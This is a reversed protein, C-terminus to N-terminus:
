GPLQDGKLKPEHGPVVQSRAALLARFDDNLLSGRKLRRRVVKRIIRALRRDEAIKRFLTESVPNKSLLHYSHGDSVLHLGLKQAIVQLTKRSYFSIHQGSEPALYWWDKVKADAPLLETTFFVNKSLTLMQSISSMPDPLHEFVEFCTMVEYQQSTDAVFTKAFLNQAYPDLWFFDYGIDRMMRTFVGYGGGWDVFRANPDFFASIVGDVIRVGKEARWLLGIDLEAIAAAYAEELWHPEQTQLFDCNSCRYYSVEHRDLLVSKFALNAPAACIKCIMDM